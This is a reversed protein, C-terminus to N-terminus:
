RVPQHMSGLYDGGTRMWEDLEAERMAALMARKTLCSERRPLPLSIRAARDRCKADRHHTRPSSESLQRLSSGSNITQNILSNQM